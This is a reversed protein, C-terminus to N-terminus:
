PYVWAGARGPHDAGTVAPLTIPVGDQSLAGLVAFGVAERAEIPIGHADSAAVHRASPDCATRIQQVLSGNRAGGGALIIEQANAAIAEGAIRGAIAAAASALLDEESMSARFRDVLSGVWADNFAERGTSRPQDGTPHLFPHEDIVRVVEDRAKGRAALRGDVDFTMDPWMARVLGDLLLNCPYVDAGRVADPSPAAPLVTVNCIGGLNVILRTREPHRFLIWDALPTIPAGQGGAVLDAQRLDYCVPVRLQRVIPWPDFLQWSLREQPAHWITQGHAVVCTLADGDKLHDHQLREALRAHLEGLDRAVRLVEIPAIARGSVIHHLRQRLADDFPQSDVATFSATMGLGQGEIRVLAADIGDLSTGTMCGIIHRIALM